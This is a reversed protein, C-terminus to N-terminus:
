KEDPDPGPDGQPWYELARDIRMQGCDSCRCRRRVIHTFPQGNSEGNHEQVHRDLYRDRRSSQCVPCRSPSAEATQTVNPSGTPRGPKRPTPDKPAPSM